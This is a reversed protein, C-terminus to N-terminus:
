TLVHWVLATLVVTGVIAVGVALHKVLDVFEWFGDDFMM